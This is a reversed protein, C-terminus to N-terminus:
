RASQLNRITVGASTEVRLYAGGIGSLPEAIRLYHTGAPPTRSVRLSGSADFLRISRVDLGSSVEIFGSHPDWSTMLGGPAGDLTLDSVPATVQLSAKNKFVKGDPIPTWEGGTRKYLMKLSYAGAPLNALGTTSFTVATKGDQSAPLTYNDKIELYGKLAAADYIGISVAGKLALTGRNSVQTSLSLPQGLAIATRTVSLSDELNIALEPKTIQLLGYNGLGKKEYAFAWANSGNPLVLVRFLYNGPSLGPSAPNGFTFATKGPMKAALSVNEKAELDTGKGTGADFLVAKLTGNFPTFGSNSIQATVAIPRDAPFSAAAMTPVDMLTVEPAPNRSRPEIGILVEHYYNLDSPWSNPDGPKYATMAFYGDYKGALGWNFHFLGNADYGDCVWAHIFSEDHNRGAYLVPRGADLEGKLMTTWKQLDDTRFQYSMSRKYGFNELLAVEANVPHGEAYYFGAGSSTPTYKMGMSVGVQFLLYAVAPAPANLVNPMAQWEYPKASFDASVVGVDPVTYSYSGTGREPYNWYKMIQATATAVCGTPYNHPTQDAIYGTQGWATKLMPNVAAAASPAAASGKALAQRGGSASGSARAPNDLFAGIEKEYGQLWFATIPDLHAADFGSETSYALVPNLADDASLIVFNKGPEGYVYYLPTSPSAAKSRQAKFLLVPNIGEAGTKALGRARSSALFDRAANLATTEDVPKASALAMALFVLACFRYLIRLSIM